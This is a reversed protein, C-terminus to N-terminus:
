QFIFCNTCWDFKLFNYHNFRFALPDDFLFHLLAFLYVQQIIKYTVSFTTKYVFVTLFPAVVYTMVRWCHSKTKVCLLVIKVWLKNTWYKQKSHWTNNVNCVRNRSRELKELSRSLEFQSVTKGNGLWLGTSKWGNRIWKVESWKVLKSSTVDNM